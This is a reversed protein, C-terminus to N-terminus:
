IRRVQAIKRLPKMISAVDFVGVKLHERRSLLAEHNHKITSRVSRTSKGGIRMKVMPDSVLGLTFSHLEIARLMWDYDSAISYDTSFLGVTEQVKRRVYFTPHAPMWGSRFGGKPPNTGTWVRVVKATDHSEVFDLSGHVMEDRILGADIQSLVDSHAFLDDSNLVGFADGSYLQLAKNLADYMGDDKESLFQIWPSAYSRVLNETGDTSGGDVIIMEKDEHTQRLFSEITQGLTEASNWAVTLVSIKM